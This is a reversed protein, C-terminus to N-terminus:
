IQYRNVVKLGWSQDVVHRRTAFNPLASSRPGIAKGIVASWRRRGRDVAGELTGKMPALMERM